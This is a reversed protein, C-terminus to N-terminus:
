PSESRSVKLNKPAVILVAVNHPTASEIRVISDGITFLTGPRINFKLVGHTEPVFHRQRLKPKASEM